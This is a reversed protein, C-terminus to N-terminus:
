SQDSESNLSRYKASSEQDDSEDVRRRKNGNGENNVPTQGETEEDSFIDDNEDSGQIDQDQIADQRGENMQAENYQQGNINSKKNNNNNNNNRKRKVPANLDLEDEGETIIDGNDSDLFSSHRSSTVSQTNQDKKEVNIDDLWEIGEDQNNNIESQQQQQQQQLQQQQLLQQQKNEIEIQKLRLRESKPVGAGQILQGFQEYNPFYDVDTSSNADNNSQQKNNEINIPPLSIKKPQSKAHKRKKYHSKRPNKVKIQKKSSKNQLQPQEQSTDTNLISSIGRPNREIRADDGDKPQSIWDVESQHDQNEVLNDTQLQKNILQNENDDNQQISKTINPKVIKQQQKVNQLQVKRKPTFRRVRKIRHQQKNKEQSNTQSVDISPNVEDIIDQDFSENSDSLLPSQEPSHVLSNQDNSAKQSSNHQPISQPQINTHKNQSSFQPSKSDESIKATEAQATTIQQSQNVLPPINQNLSLQNQM